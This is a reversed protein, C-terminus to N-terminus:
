PQSGWQSSGLDLCEHFCRVISNDLVQKEVKEMLGQELCKMFGLVKDIAERQRSFFFCTM